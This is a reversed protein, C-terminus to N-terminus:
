IHILEQVHPGLCKAVKVASVDLEKSVHAVTLSMSFQDAYFAVSFRSKLTRSDPRIALFIRGSVRYDSLWSYPRIIRGSLKDPASRIMEM